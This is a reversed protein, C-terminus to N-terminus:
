KEFYFRIKRDLSRLWKRRIRSLFDHSFKDAFAYTMLKALFWEKQAAGWHFSPLDKARWTSGEWGNNDQWAMQEDEDVRAFFGSPRAPQEENKNRHFKLMFELISDKLIFYFRNDNRRCALQSQILKSPSAYYLRYQLGVRNVSNKQPTCRPTHHEAM